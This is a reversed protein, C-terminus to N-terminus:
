LTSGGFPHGLNGMQHLIGEWKTPILLQWVTHKTYGFAGQSRASLIAGGDMCFAHGTETEVYTGGPISWLFSAHPTIHQKEPVRTEGMANKKAWCQSDLKSNNTTEAPHTVDCFDQTSVCM